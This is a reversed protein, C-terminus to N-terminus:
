NEKEEPEADPKPGRGSQPEKGDPRQSRPGKKDHHPHPAMFGQQEFTAKREARSMENLKTRWEKRQAPSMAMWRERMAERQEKPIAEFKQRMAAVKGPAMKNITGIRERLQTKEQPSMKEIREVTQRLNVLEADNMQLLHQLLRTEKGSGAHPPSKPGRDHADQGGASTAAILLCALAAILTSAKM